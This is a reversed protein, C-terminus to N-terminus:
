KLVQALFGRLTQTFLQGGPGALNFDFGHTAWPLSLFTVPVKLERLRAELRESQRHWVLKDAQGHALLTPCSAATALLLPSGTRYQEPAEQPSGGLYNKLLTLPKLITGPKSTRWALFLDTPGYLSVLGLPANQRMTYALVGAIQAGASRGLVAWREPSVGFESARDRIFEAAAQADELPAPWKDKPALRYNMAFAAIGWRALMSNLASLQTSDGSGWGGGHIVLVFPARGDREAAPYYDLTLVRDAIRRYELRRYPVRKLGAGTWFARFSIALGAPFEGTPRARVRHQLRLASALPWLFAGTLLVGLALVAAHAWLPSPTQLLAAVVAVTLVAAYHGYEKAVVSMMWLHTSQSWNLMSFAFAALFALVACPAATLFDMGYGTARRDEVLPHL